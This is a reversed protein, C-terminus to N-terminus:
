GFRGRLGLALGLCVVILVVNYYWPMNGGFVGYKLGFYSGFYVLSMLLFLGLGPKDKRIPEM